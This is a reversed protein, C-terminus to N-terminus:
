RGAHRHCGSVDGKTSSRFWTLLDSIKKPDAKSTDKLKFRLRTQCHHLSIM